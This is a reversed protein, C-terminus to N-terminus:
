LYEGLQHFTGVDDCQSVRLMGIGVLELQTFPDQPLEVRGGRDHAASTIAHTAAIHELVEQPRARVPRRGLFPAPAPFGYQCSAPLIGMRQFLHLQFVIATAHFVAILVVAVFVAVFFLVLVLTVVLYLLTLFFALLVGVRVHAM